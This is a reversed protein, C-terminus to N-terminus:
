STAERAADLVRALQERTAPKALVFRPVFPHSEWSGGDWGTILVTVLERDERSLRQLVDLGNEAGLGLDCLVVDFRQQRQLMLAGDGSDAVAVESGLSRLLAALSELVAPDDDICLLRLGDYRAVPPRTTARSKRHQDAPLRIECTTGVGDASRFDITGRYAQVLQRCVRLGIGLGSPKTSGAAGSALRERDVIGDGEDRITVLVRQRERQAGIRITGSSSMAEIANLLVNTFIQRLETDVGTVSLRDPLELEVRIAVKRRLAETEWKPRTFEVVQRLLDCLDVSRLQSAQGVVGLYGKMNALIAAADRCSTRITEVARRRDGDLSPDDLLLESMASIPMLVNRLEHAVSEAVEGLLRKRERDILEPQSGELDQLALSLHEQTNRLQEQLRQRAAIRISVVVYVGLAVFTSLLAVIAGVILQGEWERSKELSREVAGTRRSVIDSAALCAQTARNGLDAVRDMVRRADDATEPTRRLSDYAERLRDMEDCLDDLAAALDPHEREARRLDTIATRAQWWAATMLQTPNEQRLGAKALVAQQLIGALRPMGRVRELLVGLRQRDAALRETERHAMLRGYLAAAAVTAGIALIVFSRRWRRRSPRHDSALRVRRDNTAGESLDVEIRLTGVAVPSVPGARRADVGKIRAGDPVRRCNTANGGDGVM